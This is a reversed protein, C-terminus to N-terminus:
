INCYMKVAINATQMNGSAGSEQTMFYNYDWIMMKIHSIIAVAIM